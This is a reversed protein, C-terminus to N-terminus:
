EIRISTHYFIPLGKKTLGQMIVEYKSTRDSAHFEVKAEGDVTTVNPDWFLTVRDDLADPTIQDHRPVFFERAQYYGENTFSLIGKQRNTIQSKVGPPKLYVSIIGGSGAKGYLTLQHASSIVDIFAVREPSLSLLANSPVMSGNIM